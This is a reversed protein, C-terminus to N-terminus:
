RLEEYDGNEMWSAALPVIARREFATSAIPVLQGLREHNGNEMWSAALPVAAIGLSGRPALQELRERFVVQARRVVDLVSQM